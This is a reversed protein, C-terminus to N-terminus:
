IEWFNKLFNIGIKHSKEPHPQIGYINNSSIVSAFKKGYHTSAIINKSSNCDIYYSHLFYLRSKNPINRLLPSSREISISNWGMHPLPLNDKVRSGSSFKKVEGNIWGLGPLDGEQSSRALMQLGVCVGLVPMKKELVLEDLKGRMGSNQLSNMAYDFSGVGPLIIKTVDRLDDNSKSIIFPVDLNKFINAFANINGVGYNIIAIM